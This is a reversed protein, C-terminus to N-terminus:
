IIELVFRSSNIEMNIESSKGLSEKRGKRTSSFSETVTRM